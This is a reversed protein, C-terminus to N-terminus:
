VAGEGPGSPGVPKETPDRLARNLRNYASCLMLLSAAGLAVNLPLGVDWGRLCSAGVLLGCLSILFARDSKGMPGDYRRPSGILPGLVGAFEVVAALWIFMGALLGSVGPVWALPAFLAADAVVDGCENLLGGLRSKLGFERALIGDVANMAMRLFLWIPLCFWLAALSPFFYLAAGYAVSIVAAAVTVHNATVGVAYLKAAAPRLLSIFAPKLLYISVAMTTFKVYECPSPFNAPARGPAGRPFDLGCRFRGITGVRCLSLSLKAVRGM